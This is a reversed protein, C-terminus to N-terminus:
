KNELILIRQELAKIITQQEQIAKTLIPIISQYDVGMFEDFHVSEPILTGIDQAIFGLQQEGNSKYTYKVPQMQLVENLGYNISQIEDKLNYDSRTTYGAASVRGGVYVSDSVTLRYGATPANTGIGVSGAITTGTGSAGTAFIINKISVFDSTSVTPLNISNGAVFNGSGTTSNAGSGIGIYTNNSGTQNAQGASVGLFTNTSGTTNNIGASNGFFINNFGTTNNAGSFTGFFSNAFGFTSSQGSSYGFFSNGSGITMNRGALSGIFTNENGTTNNQGAQSGIFTNYAGRTDEFNLNKSGASFGIFTNRVRKSIRIENTVGGDSNLFRISPNNSTIEKISLIITGNFDSTPTINLNDITTAIPGVSNTATLNGSTYGGFSIVFSGATRNTVTYSIFYYKNIDAAFTNSLINTNGTSHTFGSTFNGTWGTTTWNSSTLLEAGLISNDLDTTNNRFTTTGTVQFTTSPAVTGVGLRDNTNDYFLGNNDQNYTGGAGAFVVSGQTFATSTNTGGNAVPLVGTVGSSISGGVRTWANNVAKKYQWIINTNTDLLIFAMTDVSPKRTTDAALGRWVLGDASTQEGLTIKQNGNGQYQAMALCPFLLLFLLQKM